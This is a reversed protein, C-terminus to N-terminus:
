IRKRSAEERINLLLCPKFSIHGFLMHAAWTGSCLQNKNWFIHFIFFTLQELKPRVTHPRSSDSLAKPSVQLECLTGSVWLLHQQWNIDHLKSWTQGPRGSGGMSTLTSEPGWSPVIRTVQIGTVRLMVVGPWFTGEVRIMYILMKLMTTVKHSYIMTMIILSLKDGDGDYLYLRGGDRSVCHKRVPLPDGVYVWWWTVM